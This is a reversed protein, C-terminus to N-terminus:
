SQTGQRHSTSRGSVSGTRRRNFVHLPEFHNMDEFSCFATEGLELLPAQERVLELYQALAPEYIDVAEPPLWDILYAFTIHFEYTDHDPHRYGLLISLEDRWNKLAADDQSAAGKVTLGFPTMASATMTFDGRPEFGALRELYLRTIEEVPADLDTERPWFHQKRRNDIVGQTLTMHLSSVPTFAFHHAHPLAMLSQRIEILVQETKSGSVLHNVITNGREPLFRGSEDFRTGFFWPRESQGANTLKCLLSRSDSLMMDAGGSRWNM